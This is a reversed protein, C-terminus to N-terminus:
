RDEEERAPAAFGHECISLEKGGMAVRATV